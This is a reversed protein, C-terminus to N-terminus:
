VFEYIELLSYIGLFIIIIYLFYWLWNLRFNSLSIESCFKKLRGCFDLEIERIIEAIDNFYEISQAEIKRSKEEGIKNGLQQLKDKKAQDKIENKKITEDIYNKIPTTEQIIISDVALRYVRARTTHLNYREYLKASIAIGFVGLLLLFISILPKNISIELTKDTNLLAILATALVLVLNAITSRQEESQRAQNWQDNYLELLFDIKKEVFNEREGSHM